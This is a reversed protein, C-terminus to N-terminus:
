VAEATKRGLGFRDSLTLSYIMMTLMCLAAGALYIGSYGLVPILIGAATTGIAFGLDCAGNFAATATGRRENSCRSICFVNIQPNYAGVCFGLIVMAMYLVIVNPSVAIMILALIGCLYAPYMIYDPGKRDSVRGSVLRSSLLGVAYMTFAFGVNTWGKKIGYSTLYVIVPSYSFSMMFSIIVPLIVGKEFGLFTKPLKSTDQKAVQTKIRGPRKDPRMLIVLIFAVACVGVAVIFLRHFDAITQGGVISLAAAPGLAMALVNGITYYGMGETLRKPPVIYSAATGSATSFISYGVGHIIRFIILILITGAFNHVACAALCLLTGVLMLSRAGYKQVLTGNVLRMGVSGFYFSSTLLGAYAASSSILRAYVAISSAFFYNAGSILLLGVMLLTFDKTWIRDKM